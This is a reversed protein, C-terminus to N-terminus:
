LRNHIWGLGIIRRLRLLWRLQKSPLRRFTIFLDFYRYLFLLEVQIVVRVFVIGRFFFSLCVSMLGLILKIVLDSCHRLICDGHRGLRLAGHDVLTLRIIHFLLDRKLDHGRVGCVLLHVNERRM